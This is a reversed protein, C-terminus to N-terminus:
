TGDEGFLIRLRDSERKALDAFEMLLDREPKTLTAAAATLYSTVLEYQANAALFEKWLRQQKTLSM